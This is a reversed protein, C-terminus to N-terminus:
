KEVTEDPEEEMPELNLSVWFEAVRSQIEPRVMPDDAAIGFVEFFVEDLQERFTPIDSEERQTIDEELLETIRKPKDIEFLIETREVRYKELQYSHVTTFIDNFQVSLDTEAGTTPILKEYDSELEALRKEIECLIAERGEPTEQLEGLRSRLRESKYAMTKYIAKAEPTEARGDPFLLSGDIGLQKLEAFIRLIEASSDKPEQAFTESSNEAMQFREAVLLIM